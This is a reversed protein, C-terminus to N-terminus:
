GRCKKTSRGCNVHDVLSFGFIGFNCTTLRRDVLMLIYKNYINTSIGVTFRNFQSDYFHDHGMTTQGIREMEHDFERWMNYPVDDPAEYFSSTTQAPPFLRRGVNASFPPWGRFAASRIRNLLSM